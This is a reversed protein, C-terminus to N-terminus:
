DAYSWLTIEVSDLPNIGSGLGVGQTSQGASHWSGIHLVSTPHFGFWRPLQRSRSSGHARCGWRQSRSAAPPFPGSGHVAEAKGRVHRLLMAAIM